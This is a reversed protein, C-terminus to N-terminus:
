EKVNSYTFWEKSYVKKIFRFRNFLVILILLKNNNNVKHRNISDAAGMVFNEPKIDRHIFHKSHIFEIIDLM